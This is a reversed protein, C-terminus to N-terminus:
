GGPADTRITYPRPKALKEPPNPPNPLLFKINYQGAAFVTLGKGVPFLAVDNLGSGISYLPSKVKPSQVSGPVNAPAAPVIVWKTGTWHEVLPAFRGDSLGLATSVYGVAWVDSASRAAVGLLRSTPTGTDPLPALRWRAGGWHEAIALNHFQRDAIQHVGVAWADNAASATVGQLFSEGVGPPGAPDESPTVTWATGDFHEILTVGPLTDHEQIGVAWVDDHARAFVRYLLSLHRSGTLDPSKVASWKRGDYHVLLPFAYGQRNEFYDVAWIDDPAVASIGNLVGDVTNPDGPNPRRVRTWHTGDWHQILTAVEDQGVAWVNNAALAAVANLHIFRAPNQLEPDDVRCWRAGDFHYVVGNGARGGPSFKFDGGVAWVDRASVGSLSTFFDGDQPARNFQFDRPLPPESSIDWRGQFPPSALNRCETTIQGTPPGALALATSILAAKVRM